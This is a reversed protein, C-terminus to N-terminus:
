TLIVSRGRPHPGVSVKAGARIGAARGIGPDLDSLLPYKM